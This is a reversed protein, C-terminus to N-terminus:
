QVPSVPDAPEPRSTADRSQPPILNVNGSRDVFIFRGAEVTGFAPYRQFTTCGTLCISATLFAVATLIRM